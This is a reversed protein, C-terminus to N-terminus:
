VDDAEKLTRWNDYVGNRMINKLNDAENYIDDVDLEWGIEQLLDALIESARQITKSGQDYSGHHWFLSHLRDQQDERDSDLKAKRRNFSRYGSRLAYLDSLIGEITHDVKLLYFVYSATVTWRHIKSYSDLNSIFGEFLDAVQRLM